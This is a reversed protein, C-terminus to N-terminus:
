ESVLKEIGSEGTGKGMVEQEEGSQADMVREKM